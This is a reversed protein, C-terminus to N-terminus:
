NFEAPENQEKAAQRALRQLLRAEDAHTPTEGDLKAQLLAALIRKYRRGPALGLTKLYDGGLEPKIHVLTRRYLNVKDIAAAFAAVAPRGYPALAYTTALLVIDAYGHLLNYIDSNRAAAVLTHLKSRLDRVQDILTRTTADLNLRTVVRQQDAEGLRYTLLLWALLPVDEPPEALVLADLQRRLTDDFILAADVAALVGLDALRALMAAVREECMIKALDHRVRDPTLREILGGAVAAQLQKMTDPDLQFGLRQEYRLARFIRTPDDVFSGAHLTRVIGAALDDAGNYPDLLTYDALRIALANITFDRRSLDLAIDRVFSVTPLAAAASYIERRTTAFDLRVLPNAQEVTATGFPPHTSELNQVKSKPNPNAAVDAPSQEMEGQQGSSDELRQAVTTALAIADGEVAIDLDLNPQGLMLDRVFGGVLYVGVGMQQAANVVITLAQKYSEPLRFEIKSQLGPTKAQSDSSKASM